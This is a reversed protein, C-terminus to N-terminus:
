WNDYDTGSGIGNSSQQDNPKTKGNVNATVDSADRSRIIEKTDNVADPEEETFLLTDHECQQRIIDLRPNWTQFWESPGKKTPAGRKFNLSALTAHVAKESLKREPSHSSGDTVYARHPDGTQYDRDEAYISSGYKFWGPFAPNSVAYVDGDRRDHQRNGFGAVEKKHARREELRAKDEDSLVEKQALIPGASSLGRRRAMLRRMGEKAKRRHCILCESQLGDSHGIHEDFDCRLKITNCCRCLKETLTMGLAEM